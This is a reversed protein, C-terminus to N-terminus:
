CGVVALSCPSLSKTFRLLGSLRIGRRPTGTLSFPNDRTSGPMPEKPAPVDLRYLRCIDHIVGRIKDSAVARDGVSVDGIMIPWWTRLITNLRELNLKRFRSVEPAPVRDLAPCCGRQRGPCQDLGGTGMSCWRLAMSYGNLGSGSVIDAVAFERRYPFANNVAHSRPRLLLVQLIEALLISLCSLCTLDHSNLLLIQWLM